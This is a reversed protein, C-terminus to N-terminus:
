HPHPPSCGTVGFVATVLTVAILLPLLCKSQTISDIITNM